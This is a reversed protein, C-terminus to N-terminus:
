IHILSLGNNGSSAVVLVGSDRLADIASKYAVNAADCSAESTFFGSGFSMNVAAVRGGSNVRALVHDLGAIVSSVSAAVNSNFVRISVLKADIATGGPEGNVNTSAVVGAVHTGHFCGATYNACPVGAGQGVMTDLGNPCSRDTTFCAEAAIKGVLASHTPSTGTDLIAVEWPESSGDGDGRLGEIKMIDSGTVATSSSLHLAEETDIELSKINPQLVLWDRGQRTLEVAM